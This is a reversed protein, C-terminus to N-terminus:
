KRLVRCWGGYAYWRDSGKLCYEVGWGTGALGMGREILFYVPYHRGNSLYVKARCYRRAISSNYYSNVTHEYAGNIADIQVGNQWLNRDAKNYRKVIKELVTSSTCAPLSKFMLANAPTPSVLLPLGIFGALILRFLVGPYYFASM